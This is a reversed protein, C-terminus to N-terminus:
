REMGVRVARGIAAPIEGLPLIEAAAGAEVVSRPMGYVVCSSEHEAIVHGGMSHLLVAGNTGDSGMGTLIAATVLKGFRQVLSLLTVDVAPRVGHVPPNQNVVVQENQDFIMHFGGPALLVQGVALRDGPGAEKVKLNSVSNLREALSHTFGAPMHQVVVVAAPLDGPLAPILDNLARPGGTSTGILVIPEGRMRPRCNKTEGEKRVVPLSAAAASTNRAPVSQAPLNVAPMGQVRAKAARLIKAAADEMVARINANNAPKAIFDVAGFTLAQITEVAGEQTLSSLMVVPRPFRAMIQRLTSLGDLHPMEVDLTVVDPQLRPILELAESGDRATGIVVIDPHENLHQSISFRMFASDDTVLVRVPNASKARAPAQETM